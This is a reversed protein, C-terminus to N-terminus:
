SFGFPCSSNQHAGGYKSMTWLWGKSKETKEKQAVEDLDRITPGRSGPARHLHTSHSLWKPGAKPAALVNHVGKPIGHEPGVVIVVKEVVVSM